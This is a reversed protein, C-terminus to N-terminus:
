TREIFPISLVDWIADLPNLKVDIKISIYPKAGANVMVKHKSKRIIESVQQVDIKRQYLNIAGEQQKIEYIGLSAATNRILAVDILGKVSEPIEGFRDVLENVVDLADDRTRIDSIRRYIDLRQNLSSIYSEPIHAQINLDVLCELEYNTSKIGKEENVAEELLRLYMEYGVDEMHGHQQSGLINGAGRLEMDRMAIRFGSGFETFEKISALRKQSIETLVKNKKFTLYAYARRNSRGVRGRIQHLQSLGMHDANDIILTNVNPLDIGTEIITTCVLVNIEHELMKRWVESMEQESMKGHAFGVKAEPIQNQLSCSIQEISEIKNHLFYVQGGRRLEKKISENILIPDYELVYTQVPYRNQPAEELTSMDRIGSMAMNLTRPIPTASLTLIDVNKCLDKFKEKQAVGFRQEEDIIVLGLDRFKIDKSVLRHTGVVLDIEGKELKKLIQVQQKATRFRSLLEVKIPFGEFRKCINQYHQMALITTPVLIACQKSDTVCKFAARLAVETKGFGVDGCLLRDMPSKKQMDAKIESICTLQDSTEEYEFHSEFDRQWENDESFAFGELELRASYLKILEKAIDKVASKVRSKTKQWESGGLKHLRIQSHERQGVYKSIMDLQTVPVYLADGKAYCVKIYDKVVGHVNMKYIGAFMGIGHSIHVVYDGESLEALNYIEKGNKSKQKKKLSTSVVGHSILSFPIELYEIGASLSGPIVTIVGKDLSASEEKFVATFGSNMLDDSLSLAARKTGALVVIYSNRIDKSLLDERLLSMSGNWISIQKASITIQEKVDTLYTKHIFTNLYILKSRTFRNTAYNLDETYKTLGKCLVGDELYEKLDESWRTFNASLREKIKTHESIFVFDDDQFYDFLTAKNNELFPIFKDISAPMINNKLKDIESRLTTAAQENCSELISEAKKILASTDNLFVESSPSLVVKDALDTRRQTHPDFFSLTDIEDGFFEIRIPYSFDPPFLDLIGGRVAFQGMSDVQEYKEYGLSILVSTISSPDIQQSPILVISKEKLAHPSITYELAADICTIVVDCEHNVLKLLANLRQHEYEKSTSEINRFNFDRYPYVVSSLGMSAIDNSLRQAESEDAAIVLSRHKKTASLSYIIHAKHILSLGTVGIPFRNDSTLASLVEYQKFKVFIDNLFDM